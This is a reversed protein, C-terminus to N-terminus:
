NGVGEKVSCYQSVGTLNEPALQSLAIGELTITQNNIDKLDIVTNGNLDEYINIQSYDTWFKSLDIVDERPDFNSILSDKGWNWTFSFSDKQGKIGFYDPTINNQGLNNM